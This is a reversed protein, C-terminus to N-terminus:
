HMVPFLFARMLSILDFHVQSVPAELDFIVPFPPILRRRHPREGVLKTSLSSTQGKRHPFLCPLILVLFLRNLCGLQVLCSFHFSVEVVFIPPCADAPPTSPSPKCPSNRRWGLRLLPSFSPFICLFAYRPLHQARGYNLYLPYSPLLACRCPKDRAHSRM